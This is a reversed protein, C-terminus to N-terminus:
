QDCYFWFRRTHKTKLNLEEAKVTGAIHRQSLQPLKQLHLHYNDFVFSFSTPMFTASSVLFLIVFAQFPLNESSISVRLKHTSVHLYVRPRNFVYFYLIYTQLSFCSQLPFLNIYTQLSLIFLCKKKIEVMATPQKKLSRPFFFRARPALLHRSHM